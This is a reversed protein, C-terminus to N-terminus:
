DVGDKPKQLGHCINKQSIKVLHCKKEKISYLIYWGFTFRMASTKMDAEAHRTILIGHM